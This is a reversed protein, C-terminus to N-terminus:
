NVALISSLRQETQVVEPTLYCILDKAYAAAVMAAFGQWEKSKHSDSYDCIGRVALCPFRNMLGAAEMEFCLANQEAALTDRLIADKMLSNGSAITGYHIALDNGYCTEREPRPITNTLDRGCSAACQGGGHVFGSKFLLDTDPPPRGYKQRLNPWKNLVEDVAEPLRNGHREHKTTLGAMATLLVQPPQNLSRTQQFRMEQVSKGYDYQLVGGHGNGPTSVVVDGLRIDNDPLKPVGGGIGVMLGIRVNPFSRLLNTAVGSASATGYEGKPLVAIVVNHKGIAGLQYSNSDNPHRNEPQGHDEDLFVQAALYEAPLATIWGVTYDTAKLQKM